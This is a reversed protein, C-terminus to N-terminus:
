PLGERNFERQLRPRRRHLDRLDAILNDISDAQDTGRTLARLHALTRAAARYHQADSHELHAMVHRTHVPVVALPDITEYREALTEWLGPEDLDLSHALDWALHVDDLTHLAFSVAERPWQDLANMVHERHEPWAGGAATLVGHAHAATSWRDFVALRAALEEDPRHEALLRCWLRAAAVSQHGPDFFTAQRSWDIALDFEAIEAFAEATDELWAAVKRDRAHTTIIAEIDHDWVALRRANWELLFRAHRRGPGPEWANPDTLRQQWSAREEEETPAPGVRAAIEALKARYLVMGRDGLAPGYAIPDLTFYDVVGDFQFNIMWAVLQAPPPPAARTLDAHLRLLDKIADGIIGSSDDARAIVKLASALARQTVQLVDAAPQTQAARHLLAVAEHAGRGYSNAAGWRHLDARTRVLPLVTDDLSSVHDGGPSIQVGTLRGRSRLWGIALHGAAMWRGSM